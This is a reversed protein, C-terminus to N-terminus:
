AALTPATAIRALVAGLGTASVGIALASFTWWVWRYAWMAHLAIATPILALLGFVAVFLLTDGFATMGGSAAAAPGSDGGSIAVALFAAGLAVAYGIVVVGLKVLPKM